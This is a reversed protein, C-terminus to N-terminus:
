AWGEAPETGQLRSFGDKAAQWTNAYGAANLQDRSYMPTKTTEKTPSTSAPLTPSAPKGQLKKGRDRSSKLGWRLVEKVFNRVEPAAQGLDRNTGVARTMLLEDIATGLGEDGYAEEPLGPFIQPRYSRAQEKIQQELSQLEQQQRAQQARQRYGQLEQELASLKSGYEQEILPKLNAYARQVPDDSDGQPTQNQAPAKPSNQQKLAQIAKKLVEAQKNTKETLQAVASELSQTKSEAEKTRAKLKRITKNARSKPDLEAIEGLDEEEEADEDEDSSEEEVSDAFLTEVFTDLEDQADSEQLPTESETKKEPEPAEAEPEAEATAKAKVQAIHQQVLEHVNSPEQPQEPPESATEPAPAPASDTM